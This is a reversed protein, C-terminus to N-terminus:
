ICAMLSSASFNYIFYKKFNLTQEFLENKIKLNFYIYILESFKLCLSYLWYQLIVSHLLTQVFKSDSHKINSVLINYILQIERYIHTCIHVCVCIYTVSDRQQVGSSVCCQLDVTEIFIKKFNKLLFLNSSYSARFTKCSIVLYMFCSRDRCHFIVQCHFPIFFQNTSCCERAKLVNHQHFFGTTSSWM